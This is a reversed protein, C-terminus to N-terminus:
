PLLFRTKNKWRKNLDDQMSLKYDLDHECYDLWRIQQSKCYTFLDGRIYGQEYALKFADNLGPNSMCFEIGSSYDGDDGYRCILSSLSPHEEDICIYLDCVQNQYDTYNGLFICRSCDHVHVPAPGPPIIDIRFRKRNKLCFNSEPYERTWWANTKCKSAAKRILMHKWPAHKFIHPM